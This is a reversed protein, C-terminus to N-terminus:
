LEMKFFTWWVKFFMEQLILILLGPIDLCSWNFRTSFKTGMQM